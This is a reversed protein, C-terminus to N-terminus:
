WRRSLLRAVGFGLGLAMLLALGPREHVFDQARLSLEEARMRWSEVGEDGGASWSGRAGKVPTGREGTRDEYGSGATGEPGTRSM